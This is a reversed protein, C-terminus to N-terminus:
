CLHLGSFSAPYSMGGRRGEVPEPLFTLVNETEIVYIDHIQPWIFTSTSKMRRGFKVTPHGESM